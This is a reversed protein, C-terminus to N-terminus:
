QKVEGSGTGQPPDDVTDNKSRLQLLVEKLKAPFVMGTKAVNELLSIGENAIYFTIVIERLPINVGVAAQVCYSGAVIIFILFKKLLGKFGIESSLTKNYVAQIVGTIYDLVVLTVLTIMLADWGGFLWAFFGGLLGIINSLWNFNFISDM